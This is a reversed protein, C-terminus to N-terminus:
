AFNATPIIDITNDDFGIQFRDVTLSTPIDNGTGRIQITRGAAFIDGGLRIRYSFLDLDSTSTSSGGGGIAEDGIPDDGIASVATASDTIFTDDLTATYVISGEVIVELDFTSGKNKLGFIDVYKWDKWTGPDNMNWEKTRFEYSIAGSLDDFGTEIQYIQGANASMALNIVTNDTDIYQGYQYFAPYVYESWSATLSSYIFTTDPKNDNTSDFSFFYNNQDQIYFGCNANRQNDTILQLRNQLDDSYAKSALAPAGSTGERQKLNDIGSKSQYLIANEVNRTARQSFMGSDPDIPLASPADVDIAFISLDKGVLLIQGLEFLTNIRGSDETGVDVDNTDLTNVNAPAANTYYLTIPASDAGGSFIRDNQVIFYRVKPQAGYETITTGDWKRYNDVGNCMGVELTGSGNFAFYEWRTRQTTKGTATEFKTLGTDIVDWGEGIPNWHFSNEGATAITIVTDNAYDKVFFYGQVPETYTGSYSVINDVLVGTKDTYSGTYTVRLRFYTITADTVTGTETADDYNLKIYNNKAETLTGLTWEYYNSSDSGLRVKVDTLDTNFGSPPFFWFGLFGKTSTIDASITSKELTAFDDGSNSVDITFSLSNAGRIATGTALTTADDAVSWGTTADCADLTLVTDPINDFYQAIGKRTKLRKDQDYSFNKLVEFQNDKPLEADRLSLGGTTDDIVKTRM